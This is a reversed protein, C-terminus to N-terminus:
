KPSDTAATMVKNIDTNDIYKGRAPDSRMAYREFLESGSGKAFLPVLSNTHEWYNFQMDPAVGVGKNVIQGFVPSEGSGLNKQPGTLYGTEHDATIILLTDEWSSNREIWDIVADVGQNFDIMEEIMRARQNTHGAWDVAGGEIMLFFGKPNARLVNLAALSIESTTPVNTTLPAESVLTTHFTPGSRSQQTTAAAQFAGLVRSPAKGVALSQVQARTQVLTWPNAGGATGNLLSEWTELGGVYGGPTLKSQNKALNPTTVAVGDDTYYPHGAGMIVDVDSNVMENAIDAYNDRTVNHAVFCAPTAHSWPVNTVVGAARGDEKFKQAITKLDNGYLDKAIAKNYTKVGCALATGAAASDTPDLKVHDWVSSTKAPDYGCTTAAGSELPKSSTSGPYTSVAYAVPFQEYRQSGAKGYQYYDTALIHNYGCGDAIMLIINKPAASAVSSVLCLIVAAILVRLKRLVGEV